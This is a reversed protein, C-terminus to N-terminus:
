EFFEELSCEGEFSYDEIDLYGEKNMEFPIKSLITGAHNVNVKPEITAFDLGDDSMRIDYKYVGIPIIKPSIRENTFLVEVNNITILDFDISQLEKNIM